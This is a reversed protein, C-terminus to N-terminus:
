GGLARKLDQVGAEIRRLGTNLDDIEQQQQKVQSRLEEVTQQLLELDGSNGQMAAARAAVPQGPPRPL